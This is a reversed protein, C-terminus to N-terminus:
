GGYLYGKLNDLKEILGEVYRGGASHIYEDMKEKLPQWRVDYEKRMADDWLPSVADHHAQLQEFSAQLSDNFQELEQTFANMAILVDDMSM